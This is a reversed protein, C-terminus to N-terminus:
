EILIKREEIKGHEHAANIISMINSVSSEEFGSLWLVTSLENKQLQHGICKEISEVFPRYRNLQWEEMVAGEPRWSSILDLEIWEARGRKNVGKYKLNM